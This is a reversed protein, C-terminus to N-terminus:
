LPIFIVILDKDVTQCRVSCGWGAATLEQQLQFQELNTLAFDVPYELRWGDLTDPFKVKNLKNGISEILEHLRDSHYKRAIDVLKPVM